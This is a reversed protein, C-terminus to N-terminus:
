SRRLAGFWVRMVCLTRPSPERAPPLPPISARTRTHQHPHPRQHVQGPQVLETPVAASLNSRLLLSRPVTVVRSGASDDYKRGEKKRAEKAKDAEFQMLARYHIPLFLNKAVQDGSLPADQGAIGVDDPVLIDYARAFGQMIGRLLVSRDLELARIAEGDADLPAVALLHPGLPGM